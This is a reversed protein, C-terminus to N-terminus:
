AFTAVAYQCATILTWIQNRITSLMPSAVEVEAASVFPATSSYAHNTLQVHVNGSSVLFQLPASM